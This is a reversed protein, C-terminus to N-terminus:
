SKLSKVLYKPVETYGQRNYFRHAETRRSHSHLEIRDCNREQALAVCHAEMEKGIGKSRATEDVAFYSIRAFDGELALQPIFHISIFALVENAEEYVFLVADSHSLLIELKKLIFNETDPYDMQKLLDQIKTSDALTAKRISMISTQLDTMM